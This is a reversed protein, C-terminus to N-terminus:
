RTGDDIDGTQIPDAMHMGANNILVDITSFGQPLSSDIAEFVLGIV